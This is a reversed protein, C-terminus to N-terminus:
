GETGPSSECISEEEVPGSEFDLDNLALLPSDPPSALGTIIVFMHVAM